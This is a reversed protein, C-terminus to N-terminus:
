DADEKEEETENFLGKVFKRKFNRRRDEAKCYHKLWHKYILYNIFNFYVCNQCDFMVLDERLTVVEFWEVENEYIHCKTQFNPLQKVVDFLELFRLFSIKECAVDHRTIFKKFANYSYKYTMHVDIIAMIIMVFLYALGFVAIIALLTKM